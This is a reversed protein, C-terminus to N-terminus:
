NKPIVIVSLNLFCLVPAHKLGNCPNVSCQRPHCILPSSILIIFGTALISHDRWSMVPKDSDKM